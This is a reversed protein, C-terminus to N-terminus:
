IIYFARVLHAPKKIQARTRSARFRPRSIEFKKPNKPITPTPPTTQALASKLSLSFNKSKQSIQPLFSIKQTKQSIQTKQTEFPISIM